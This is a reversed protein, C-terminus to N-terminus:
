VQLLRQFFDRYRQFTMRLDDTSAQNGASWQEELQQQQRQFIGTMERMVDSVLTEAEQVASRPDDVFGVQISEWRRAYGPPDAILSHQTGDTGAGANVELGAGESRLSSEQQSTQAAVGTQQRTASGSDSSGTNDQRYGSAVGTTNEEYATPPAQQQDQRSAVVSQQGGAMDSDRLEAPTLAPESGVSVTQNAQRGSPQMEDVPEEPPNSLDQAQESSTTM